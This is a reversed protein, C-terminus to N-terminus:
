RRARTRCIAPHIGGNTRSDPRQEVGLAHQGGRDDDVILWHGRQQRIRQAVIVPSKEHLRRAKRAVTTSQVPAVTLTSTYAVEEGSCSGM